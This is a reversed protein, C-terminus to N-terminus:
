DEKFLDPFYARATKIDLPCDTLEEGKRGALIVTGYFWAGCIMCNRDLGRIAGEDNCIVALDFPLSYIDIYGDVWKQLNQLSDSINVHRAPKHPEKIYVSISSM